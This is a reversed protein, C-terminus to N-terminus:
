IRHAFPRHAKAIQIEACRFRCDTAHFVAYDDVYGAERNSNTFYDASDHEILEAPTPRPLTFVFRCAKCRAVETGIIAIQDSSCVLCKM